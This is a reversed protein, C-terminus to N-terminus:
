FILYKTAEIIQQDEKNINIKDIPSILMNLALLYVHSALLLYMEFLPTCQMWFEALLSSFIITKAKLHM